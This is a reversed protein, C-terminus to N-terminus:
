QIEQKYEKKLYAVLSPVAEAMSDFYESYATCNQGYPDPIEIDNNNEMFERFLHVRDPLNEYYHKLTDLHSQTMAFIAFSRQILDETVPQSKHNTLDLQVRKLVSVSNESASIGYGAAVGASVVELLNVPEAELSLAKQLLKEAIPSRCINGTCITLILNRHDDM